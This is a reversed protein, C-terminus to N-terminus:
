AAHGGAKIREIEAELKAVVKLLEGTQEPLVVELDAARVFMLVRIFPDEASALIEVVGTLEIRTGDEAELFVKTGARNQADSRFILKECAM